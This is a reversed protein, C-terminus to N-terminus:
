SPSPVSDNGTHVPMATGCVLSHSMPRTMERVRVQVATVASSAPIYAPSTRSAVRTSAIGMVLFDACGGERGAPSGPAGLRREPM